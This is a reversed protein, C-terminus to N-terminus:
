DASRPTITIPEPPQGDPLPVRVELVGHKVEADISNPDVGEPLPMSRSFSGSRRERRLYHKDQEETSEEHRGSITLIGGECQIEMEEPKFGPVDVRILLSDDERVMDVAPTWEREMLEGFLRDFRPRLEALEAFPDWRVLTSSAM